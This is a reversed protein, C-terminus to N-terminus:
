KRGSMGGGRLRAHVVEQRMLEYVQDAVARADAKRPEPSAKPGTGEADAGGGGADTATGSPPEGSEGSPEPPTQFFILEPRSHTEGQNLVNSEGHDDGADAPVPLAAAPSQRRAVLVPRRQLRSSLRAADRGAVGVVPAGSEALEEGDEDFAM